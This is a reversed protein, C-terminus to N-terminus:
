NKSSIQCLHPLPLLLSFPFPTQLSHILRIQLSFLPIHILSGTMTYHSLTSWVIPNTLLLIAPPILSPLLTSLTPSFMTARRSPLATTSSVDLSTLLSQSHAIRSTFLGEPRARQVPLSFVATFHSTRSPIFASDAEMRQLASLLGADM